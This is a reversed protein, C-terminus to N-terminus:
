FLFILLIYININIFYQVWFFKFSLFIKLKAKATYIDLNDIWLIYTIICILDIKTTLRVPVDPLRQVCLAVWSLASSLQEVIHQPRPYLKILSCWIDRHLQLNWQHQVTSQSVHSLSSHIATQLYFLSQYFLRSLFGTLLKSITIVIYVIIWYFYM